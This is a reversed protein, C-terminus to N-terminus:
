NFGKKKMIGAIYAAPDEVVEGKLMKTKTVEKAESFADWSQKKEAWKEAVATSIGYSKILSVKRQQEIDEKFDLPLTLQNIIKSGNFYITIWYYSRGRKSLKYDFEIDTNENIQKKAIDLVQKQFSSVREYQEVGKKDVLDLMKKLELIEMKKYGISRWQCALAYLRKAYKSSCALLSKLQMATFNNKLEFFYPAADSNIKVDFSGTGTLYDVKSFLWLQTYRDNTEIEFVRSGMAETAERLQQFNWNRGTIAEIDKVYITYTLKDKQLGALVMFLIDLMCASFDYRGSTIANHQMIIKDEYNSIDEM